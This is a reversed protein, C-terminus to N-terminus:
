GAKIHQCPIIAPNSSSISINSTTQQCDPRVLLALDCEGLSQPHAHYNGAECLAELRSAVIDGMKIRKPPHVANRKQLCSSAWGPHSDLPAAAVTVSEIATIDYDVCFFSFGLLDGQVREDVQALALLM